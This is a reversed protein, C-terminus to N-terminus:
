AGTLQLLMGLGKAGTGAVSVDIAILNGTAVTSASASVVPPTTATYSTTDNANITIATSLMNANSNTINRVQITPLGSSSATSVYANASTLTFGNLDASIAVILIGTGTTLTTTDSIVKIQMTKTVPAWSLGTSQASDATLTRSTTGVPLRTVTNLGTSVLLDGKTTVISTDIKGNLATQTASSIPKSLDSTNDVNSLGVDTKTLSNTAIASSTIAGPQIQNSGVTNPKLQGQSDHAQSLFDNLLAGWTDSDSGPIPLRSM